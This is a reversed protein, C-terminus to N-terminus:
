LLMVAVGACFGLALSFACVAALMAIGAMSHHFHETV